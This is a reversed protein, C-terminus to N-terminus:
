YPSVSHSSRQHRIVLEGSDKDGDKEKRSQTRAGVMLIRERRAKNRLRRDEEMTGNMVLGHREECGKGGWVMMGEDRPEGLHPNLGHFEGVSIISGVGQVEERQWHRSRGESRKFTMGCGGMCAYNKIGLAGYAHRKADHIRRFTENCHTCLHPRTAKTTPDTNEVILSYPSPSPLSSTNSSSPRISGATSPPTAYDNYFQFEESLLPLPAPPPQRRLLQSQREQVQLHHLERAFYFPNSDDHPTITDTSENTLGYFPNNGSSGPKVTAPPPTFFTDLSTSHPTAVSSFSSSTSPRSSRQLHPPPFSNSHTTSTWPRQVQPQHPFPANPIAPDCISWRRGSYDFSPDSYSQTYAFPDQSQPAHPHPRQAAWSHDHHLSPPVTNAMSLHEPLPHHQDAM